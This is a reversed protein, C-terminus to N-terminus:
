RLARIREAADAYDHVRARATGLADELSLFRRQRGTAFPDFLVLSTTKSDEPPRGAWWALFADPPDPCTVQFTVADRRLVRMVENSWLAVIVHTETRPPRAFGLSAALATALYRRKGTFRGLADQVDPFGTRNELHLLADRDIDWHLVDARGAFHFHQWPEDISLGGGHTRLVAAEVEGMFAHVLDAGDRAAPPRGPRTLDMSLEHKLAKAIRVYIEISAPEGTEVNHITGTAVGAKAAFARVSMRRRRRELRVAQGFQFAVRKAGTSNFDPKPDGTSSM